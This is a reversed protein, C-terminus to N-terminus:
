LLLFSDGHQFVPSRAKPNSASVSDSITNRPSLDACRLADMGSAGCKCAPRSDFPLHIPFTAPHDNGSCRRVCFIRFRLLARISRLEKPPLWVCPCPGLRAIYAPATHLPTADPLSSTTIQLLERKHKRSRHSCGTSSFSVVVSVALLCVMVGRM